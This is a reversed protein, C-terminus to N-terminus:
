RLKIGLPNLLVIKSEYWVMHGTHPEKKELLVGSFAGSMACEDMPKYLM